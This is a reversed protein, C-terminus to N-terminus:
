LDLEAVMQRAQSILSNVTDCADDVPMNWPEQGACAPNEDVGSQECTQCEGDQTLGSIQRVFRAMEEYGASRTM